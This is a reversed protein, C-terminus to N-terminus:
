KSAPAQCAFGYTSHCPSHIWSGEASMHACMNDDDTSGDDQFNVYGEPGVPSGADLWIWM